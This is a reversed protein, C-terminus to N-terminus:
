TTTFTISEIESHIICYRFTNNHNHRRPITLCISAVIGRSRCGGGDRNPGCCLGICFRVETIKTGAHIDKCGAWTNRRSPIWGGRSGVRDTSCAHRSRTLEWKISQQSITKWSTYARGEGGKRFENRSNNKSSTAPIAAAMREAFGVIVGWDTRSFITFEAAGSVPLMYQATTFPMAQGRLLRDSRLCRAITVYSYFVDGGLWLICWGAKLKDRWAGRKPIVFACSGDDYWDVKYYIVFHEPFHRIIWCALISYSENGVLVHKCKQHQNSCCAPYSLWYFYLIAQNNIKVNYICGYWM